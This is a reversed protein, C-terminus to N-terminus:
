ISNSWHSLKKRSVSSFEAIFFYSLRFIKSLNLVYSQLVKMSIIALEDNDVMDPEVTFSEFCFSLFKNRTLAEQKIVMSARVRSTALRLLGEVQSLAKM